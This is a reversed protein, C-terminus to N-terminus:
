ETVESEVYCWSQPPREIPRINDCGCMEFHGQSEDNEEYYYKCGRCGIKGSIGDCFRKFESLERPKDYIVLNSIHWGYVDKGGSYREAEDQTLCAAEIAAQFFLDHGAFISPHSVVWVLKDCM